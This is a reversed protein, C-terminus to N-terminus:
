RNKSMGITAALINQLAVLQDKERVDGLGLELLGMAPVQVGRERLLWYMAAVATRRNADTFLHNLVLQSYAYAAAEQLDGEGAKQRAVSLIDRAMVFPDRVVSFTETKGGPLKLTTVTKRWPNEQSHCLLNNIHALEQPGLHKTGGINQDIYDIAREFRVLELQKRLIDPGTM